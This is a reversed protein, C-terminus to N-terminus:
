AISKCPSSMQKHTSAGPQGENALRLWARLLAVPIGGRIAPYYGKGGVNPPPTAPMRRM